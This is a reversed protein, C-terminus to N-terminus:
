NELDRKAWLMADGALPEELAAFGKKAYLRRAPNDQRVELTVLCCNESRALDAVADLLKGGIGLGRADDQVILDHINLLPKARFSSFGLFCLAMGVVSWVNEETKSEAFVIRTTPHRRLGPILNMQVYEPLPKNSGM